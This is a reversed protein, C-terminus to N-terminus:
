NLWVCKPTPPKISFHKIKSKTKIYPNNNNNNTIQVIKIAVQITEKCKIIQRQIFNSQSNNISFLSTHNGVGAWKMYLECGLVLFIWLFKRWRNRECKRESEKVSECSNTIFLAFTKSCGLHRCTETCHTEKFNSWKEFTVAPLLPLISPPCILLSWLKAVCIRCASTGPIQLEFFWASLSLFADAWCLISSSSCM